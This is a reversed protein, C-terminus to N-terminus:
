WLELLKAQILGVRRADNSAMVSEEAATARRFVGKKIVNTPIEALMTDTFFNKGSEIPASEASFRIEGSGVFAPAETQHSGQWYYFFVIEGQSEIVCAGKSHWEAAESGDAGYSRGSLYPAETVPDSSITVYGMAGVAPGAQIKSWWHGQVREIPSDDESPAALIAAVERQLGGWLGDFVGHLKELDLERAPKDMELLSKVLSWVEMKEFPTAHFDSLPSPLKSPAIGFLLPCVRSPSAAKSIAGAEFPIWASKLSRRTLCWIGVDSDQLERAVAGRWERGKDIDSPAFFIISNPVLAKVLAAIINTIAKSRAGSWGLFVKM